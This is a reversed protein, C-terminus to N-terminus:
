LLSIFTIPCTGSGNGNCSLGSSSSGSNVLVMIVTFVILILGLVILSITLAKKNWEIKKLQSENISSVDKSKTEQTKVDKKENNEMARIM